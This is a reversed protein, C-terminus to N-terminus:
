RRCSGNFLLRQLSDIYLHHGAQVGSNWRHDAYNDLLNLMNSQQVVTSLFSPNLPPIHLTDIKYVLNQSINLLATKCVM